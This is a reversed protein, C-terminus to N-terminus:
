QNWDSTYCNQYYRAACFTSFSNQEFLGHHDWKRLKPWRSTFKFFGRSSILSRRGLLFANWYSAYRGNMSRIVCVMCAGVMCVGWWAGGVVCVGQWACGQWARWGGVVCVGRGHMGGGRHVSVCRYFCLMRLSRKRVTFSLINETTYIIQCKFKTGMLQNYSRLLPHTSMTFSHKLVAM